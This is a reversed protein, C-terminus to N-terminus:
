VGLGEIIQLKFLQGRNRLREFQTIPATQALRFQAIENELLRRVGLESLLAAGALRAAFLDRM